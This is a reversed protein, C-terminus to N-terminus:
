MIQGKLVSLLVSVMMAGILYRAKKLRIHAFSVCYKKKLRFVQADLVAGRPRVRSLLDFGCVCLSKM